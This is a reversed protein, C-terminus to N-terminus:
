TPYYYWPWVEPGRSELLTAGPLNHPPPKQAISIKRVNTTAFFYLLPHMESWKGYKAHIMQSKNITSGRFPNVTLTVSLQHTPNTKPNDNYFQSNKKSIQESGSTRLFCIDSCTGIYIGICLTLTLMIFWESVTCKYKLM